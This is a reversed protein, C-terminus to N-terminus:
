GYLEVPEQNATREGLLEKAKGHNCRRPEGGFVTPRGVVWVSGVTSRAHAM